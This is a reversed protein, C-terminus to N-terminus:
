EIIHDSPEDDWNGLVCCTWEVGDVETSYHIHTGIVRRTIDDGHQWRLFWRFFGEAHVHVSPKAVASVSAGIVRVYEPISGLQAALASLDSAAGEISMGITTPNKTAM